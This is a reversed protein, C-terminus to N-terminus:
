RTHLAAHHAGVYGVRRVVAGGFMEVAPQARAVDDADRADIRAGQRPEDAVLAHGVADDRMIGIAIEINRREDFFGIGPRAQEAEVEGFVHGATLCVSPVFALPGPAFAEGLCRGFMFDDGDVEADLAIDQAAEGGDAARDRDDGGRCTSFVNQRHVGIAHEQRVARAVGGCGANVGHRFDFFEDGAALRDEADAEAVLHQRNRQARFGFLHMLAVVAGIM